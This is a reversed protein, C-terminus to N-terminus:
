NLKFRKLFIDIFSDLVKKVDKEELKTKTSVLSCLEEKSLVVDKTEVVENILLAEM